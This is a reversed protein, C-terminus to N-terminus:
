LSEKISKIIRFFDEKRAPDSPGGSFVPVGGSTGGWKEPPGESCGNLLISVM